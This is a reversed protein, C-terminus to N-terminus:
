DGSTKVVVKGAAQGNAVRGLAKTIDELPFVQDLAVKLRGEAVMGAVESLDDVDQKAVLLRYKRSGFSCLTGTTMLGGWAAMSGGVFLYRGGKALAPRIERNRRTGFLDLILDYRHGEAAFDTVRYDLVRDAGLSELLGAKQASDLATVEAGKAKALQVAFSGMGGGAGNILVKHGSQVSRVGQLAIVAAQPLAAATMFDMGDPVPILRKAPALAYEAFGGFSDFCDGFVADGPKQGEVGPGVAEVVGAIDSGMVKFRPKFLGYSRAYAPKATILEIDSANVGCAMVKLRVQGKGPTPIPIDRLSVQEVPGYSENWAVIM